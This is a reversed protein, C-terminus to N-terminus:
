NTCGHRKLRKLLHNSCSVYKILAIIDVHWQSDGQMNKFDHTFETLLLTQNKKRMIKLPAYTGNNEFKPLLTKLAGPPTRTQHFLASQLNIKATATQMNM